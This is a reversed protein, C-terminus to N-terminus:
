QRLTPVTEHRLSARLGLLRGLALYGTVFAIGELGGRILGEIWSREAHATGITMAAIVAVGTGAVFWRPLGGSVIGRDPTLAGARRLSAASLLLVTASVVTTTAALAFWWGPLATRLAVAHAGEGAVAIAAATLAVRM